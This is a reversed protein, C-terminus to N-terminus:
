PLAFAQKLVQTADFAYGQHYLSDARLMAKLQPDSQLDLAQKVLKDAKRHSARDVVVFQGYFPVLDGAPLIAWSYTKGPLFKAPKVRQVGDSPVRVVLAGQPTGERFEVAQVGAFSAHTFDIDFGPAALLVQGTPLSDSAGRSTATVSGPGGGLLAVLSARWGQVSTKPGFASSDITQGVSFKECKLTDFQTTICAVVAGKAVKVGSCNAENRPLEMVAEARTAVAGKGGALTCAFPEALVEGTALAGWLGVLGVLVFRNKALCWQRVLQYTLVM